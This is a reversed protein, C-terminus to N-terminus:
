LLSMLTSLFLTPQFYPTIHSLLLLQFKHPHTFPSDSSPNRVMISQFDKSSFLDSAQDPVGVSPTSSLSVKYVLANIPLNELEILAFILLKKVLPTIDEPSTTQQMKKVQSSNNQISSNDTPELELKMLSPQHLILSSPEQSMSEQALRPSSPTSLM